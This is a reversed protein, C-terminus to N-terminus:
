AVKNNDIFDVIDQVTVFNVLAEEPISIKFAEELAMNVEVADLSDAGLDEKIDVTLVVDEENCCITDVIIEKVKDFTM